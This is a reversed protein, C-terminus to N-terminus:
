KFIGNVSIGPMDTLARIIPTARRFEDLLMADRKDYFNKYLKIPPQKTARNHAPEFITYYTPYKRSAPYAKTGKRLSIKGGKYSETIEHLLTQGEGKRGFTDLVKNLFPNVRQDTSIYSPDKTDSNYATFDNGWFAGGEDNGIYKNDYTSTVNVAINADNIIKMLKRDNRSTPIADGFRNIRYTDTLDMNVSASIMGTEANRTLSLNSIAQLQRFSMQAAGDNDDKGKIVLTQGTPDIYKLPCNRAYSYCYVGKETASACYLVGNEEYTYSNEIVPVPENFVYNQIVCFNYYDFNQPQVTLMKTM